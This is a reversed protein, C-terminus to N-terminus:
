GKTDQSSGCEPCFTSNPQLETDCKICSKVLSVGCSPCFKSTGSIDDNCNDCKKPLPENCNMCKINGEPNDTGCNPCCVFPDGCKPCFKSGKQSKTGCKDCIMLNDNPEKSKLETTLAKGCGSCFQATDQNITKCGPCTNGSQSDPQIQSAMQGMAGGMTGGLGFGMGLGIGAGMVGSQGGGPNKAAGEMTDFSREQQYSYGIIDMEAKKALAEKLRTVAPDDEPTDISNVYFNILKAGFEEFDPRLSTELTTSIESLQASIELISIKEKIVQTAILDKVKSMFFGRFYNVLKKRDFSELTGVLKKLFKKTETIQLGFQGHARVPLMINYTPDKVQIPVSTGWKIDLAMMKNVYWVEATFPSKGGFPIKFVESLLPINKTDLTHRGTKFPGIMEGEKVLIAEQTESVILQTWTSLDESPFKWAYVDESANWKLFDIVTM